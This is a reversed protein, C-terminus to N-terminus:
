EATEDQQLPKTRLKPLWHSPLAGEAQFIATLETATLSDLDRTRATRWARVVQDFLNVVDNPRLLYVHSEAVAHASPHIRAQPTMLLVPSDGPAAEGRKKATFRLHGGAQRVDDTLEGRITSPEEIRRPQGCQDRAWRAWMHAASGSTCTRCRPRTASRARTGRKGVRPLVPSEQPGADITVGAVIGAAGAVDLPTAGRTATLTAHGLGLVVTDPRHVKIGRDIDYVGPTLLLHKGRALQTDIEQASDGPRAIHFDSLPVTRGATLGNAWTAGRTNTHRTRRPRSSPLTRFWARQCRTGTQTAGSTAGPHVGTVVGGNAM